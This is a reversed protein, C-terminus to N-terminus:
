IKESAHVLTPWELYLSPEVAEMVPSPGFFQLTRFGIWATQCAKGPLSDPRQDPRIHMTSPVATQLKTVSHVAEPEPRSSV